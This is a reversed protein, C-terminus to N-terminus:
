RRRLAGILGAGVIIASAGYVLVAMVTQTFHSATGMGSGPGQAALAASTWVAAVIAGIASAARSMPTRMRFSTMVIERLFVELLYSRHDRQNRARVCNLRHALADAANMNM